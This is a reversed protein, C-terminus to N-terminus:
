ARYAMGHKSMNVFQSPPAVSCQFDSYLNLFSNQGSTLSMAVLIKPYFIIVLLDSRFFWNSFLFKLKHFLAVSGNKTVNEKM